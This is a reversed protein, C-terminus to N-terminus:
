QNPVEVDDHLKIKIFLNILLEINKNIIDEKNFFYEGKKGKYNFEIKSDSPFPLQITNEKITLYLDEDLVKYEKNYVFDENLFNKLLDDISNLELANEKIQRFIMDLVINENLYSKKVHIFSEFTNYGFLRWIVFIDDQENLCIKDIFDYSLELEFFGNRYKDGVLYNKFLKNQISESLQNEEEQTLNVFDKIERLIVM